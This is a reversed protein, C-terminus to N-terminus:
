VKIKRGIGSTDRIRRMRYFSERAKSLGHQIGKTAGGEKDLLAGLYVFEEIEHVQQGGNIEIRQNNRTSAHSQSRPMSRFVAEQLKM